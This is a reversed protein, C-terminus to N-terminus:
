RTIIPIVAKDAWWVVPPVGHFLGSGQPQFEDEGQQNQAQQGARPLKYGGLIGIQERLYATRLSFEELSHEVSITKM